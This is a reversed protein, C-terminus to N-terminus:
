QNVAAPKSHDIRELLQPGQGSSLQMHAIHQPATTRSRCAQWCCTPVLRFHQTEFLTANCSRMIPNVLAMNAELQRCCSNRRAGSKRKLCPLTAVKAIQSFSGLAMMSNFRSSMNHTALASACTCHGPKTLGRGGICHQKPTSSSLPTQSPLQQKTNINGGCECNAM